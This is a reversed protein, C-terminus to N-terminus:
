AYDYKSKNQKGYNGHTEWMRKKKLKNIRSTKGCKKEKPQEENNEHIRLRM